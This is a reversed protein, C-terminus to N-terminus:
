APLGSANFRRVGFLEGTRADIALCACKELPESFTHFFYKEPVKRVFRNLGGKASL